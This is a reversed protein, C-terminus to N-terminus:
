SLGELTNEICTKREDYNDLTRDMVRNLENATVGDISALFNQQSTFAM